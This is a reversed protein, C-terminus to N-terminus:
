WVLPSLPILYCALLDLETLIQKNENIPNCQSEWVWSIGNKFKFVPNVLFNLYHSCSHNFGQRKKCENKVYLFLICPKLHVIMAAMKQNRLSQIVNKRKEMQHNTQKKAIMFNTTMGDISMLSYFEEVRTWGHHLSFTLLKELIDSKYLFAFLQATNEEELSRAM